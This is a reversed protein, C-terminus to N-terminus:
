KISIYVTISIDKEFNVLIRGYGQPLLIIIQCQLQDMIMVMKIFADRKKKFTRNSLNISKIKQSDKGYDRMVDILELIEQINLEVQYNTIFAFPPIYIVELKMDDKYLFKQLNGPPFQKIYNEIEM